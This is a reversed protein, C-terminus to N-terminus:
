LFDNRFIWQFFQYQLQFELVKAVQYLSSVWQFLSLHQSLNFTPPFPSSLSHSPQIADGVWHVHTQALELLQHHVPFDPVSGDMPECLTLYSQPVSSFQIPHTTTGNILVLLILPPLSGLHPKPSIYSICTRDRHQPLNGPPPFSLGSWYEQRAFRMSLPAQCGVTWPTVFLWVCSLVYIPPCPQLSSTAILLQTKAKNFHHYSMWFSYCLDDSGHVQFEKADSRFRPVDKYKMVMCWKM